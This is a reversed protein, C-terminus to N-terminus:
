QSTRTRTALSQQQWCHPGIMLHLTTLDGPTSPTTAVLWSPQTYISLAATVQWCLLIM